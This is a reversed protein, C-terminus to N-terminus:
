SIESIKKPSRRRRAAAEVTCTFHRGLKHGRGRPLAYPIGRGFTLLSLSTRAERRRKVLMLIAPPGPPGPLRQACCFRPFDVQKRGAKKWWSGGGGGRGEHMLRRRLTFRRFGLAAARGTSDADPSRVGPPPRPAVEKGDKGKRGKRAAPPQGLPFARPLDGLRGFREMRRHHLPQGVVAHTILTCDVPM